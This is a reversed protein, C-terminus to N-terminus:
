NMVTFHDMMPVADNPYSNCPTFKRYPTCHEQHKDTTMENPHTQSKWFYGEIKDFVIPTNKSHFLYGGLLVFPAGFLLSFMFGWSFEKEGILALAIPTMLFLGIAIFFGFFMFAGLGLCFIYKDRDKQILRHTSFSSGGGALPSWEVELALPDEFIGPDFPVPPEMFKLIKAAIRKLFKM